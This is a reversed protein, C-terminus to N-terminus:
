KILKSKVLVRFLMYLLWYAQKGSLYRHSVIKQYNWLKEGFTMEGQYKRLFAAIGLAMNESHTLRPGEVHQRHIAQCEELAIIRMESLIAEIVLSKDEGTILATDFGGLALFIEKRIVINSGTVGSNERFLVSTSVGENDIRKWPKVEGNELQDLRALVLDGEEMASVTKELYDEEWLDDDDIFAIVDGQAQVAGYNRAASAGCYPFVEIIKVIGDEDLQGTLRESGNNVVIIEEPVRSQVKVNELTEFLLESRNCTPIVVSVKFADVKSCNM